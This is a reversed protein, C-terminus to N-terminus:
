RYDFCGVLNWALITKAKKQQESLDHKMTAMVQEVLRVKDVLSLKLALEIADNLTNTKQTM